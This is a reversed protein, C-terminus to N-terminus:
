SFSAAEIEDRIADFVTDQDPCMVLLITSDELIETRTNVAIEYQDTLSYVFGTKQGEVYNDLAELVADERGPVPYFAAVTYASADTLSLSIAFASLDEPQLGLAAFVEGAQSDQPSTIIPRNQNTQEDRADSIASQYLQTREQASMDEQEGGSDACGSLLLLVLAAAFMKKM